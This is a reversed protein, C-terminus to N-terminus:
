FREANESALQQLADGDVRYRSEAADWAYVARITRGSPEPVAEGGCDAGTAVTRETVTVVIEARETAGATEIGAQQSREFACSKDSFTFVSDILSLRDADFLIIGNSVYAQSSNAHMSMTLIALRGAGLDLSAPDLFWTMRDFAVDAADLLRPTAAPDFLALVAYGQAADRAMGLDVLLLVRGRGDLPFVSFTAVAPEDPPESEYEPGAIHRLRVVRTGRYVSGSLELDPVIERLLDLYTIGGAGPVADGPAPFAVEAASASALGLWLAALVASLWAFLSRTKASM